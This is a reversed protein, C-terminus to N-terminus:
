LTSITEELKATYSTALSVGVFFLMSAISLMLAEVIYEGDDTLNWVLPIQVVTLWLLAM